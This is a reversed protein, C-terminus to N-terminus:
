EPNGDARWMIIRFLNGGILNGIVLCVYLGLISWIHESLFPLPATLYYFADAICHPFGCLIFVPVGFLLPLFQGKRGFTVATTVIFGCGMALAGCKLAGTALRAELIKQAADQLHMPSLRALLALLLCGTINGALILLAEPIDKRVDMFGLYGTYLKFKYCVVTILGLTFAVAGAIGGVCLYVFGGFGISMGALISSRFTSGM